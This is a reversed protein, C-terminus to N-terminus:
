ERTLLDKLRCFVLTHITKASCIIRDTTLAMSLVKMKILVKIIHMDKYKTLVVITHMVLDQKIRNVRAM